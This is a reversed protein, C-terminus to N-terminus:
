DPRSRPGWFYATIVDGLHPKEKSLLKLVPRVLVAQVHFGRKQYRKVLNKHVSSSSSSISTSAPVGSPVDSSVGLIPIGGERYAGETVVANTYALYGVILYVTKKEKDAKRIWAMERRSLTASTSEFYSNVNKLSIEECVDAEIMVTVESARSPLLSGFRARKADPNGTSHTSQFRIETAIAKRRVEKNYTYTGPLVINDIPHPSQFDVVFSGLGEAIGMEIETTEPDMNSRWSESSLAPTSTTVKAINTVTTSPSVPGSESGIHITAAQLPRSTAGRELPTASSQSGTPINDSLGTRQFGVSPITDYIQFCALPLDDPQANEFAEWFVAEAEPRTAAEPSICDRILTRLRDPVKTPITAAADPSNTSLGGRYPLERDFWYFFVCGLAFVDAKNTWNPHDRTVEPPIFPLTGAYSVQGDALSLKDYGLGFDCLKFIAQKSSNYRVLINAPKIDRHIVSAWPNGEKDFEERLISGNQNRILGSHCYALAASLQNVFSWTLRETPWGPKNYNDRILHDLTEGECWEMIIKATDNTWTRDHYRVINPHDLRKLLKLEQEVRERFKEKTDYKDPLYTITKCALIKGSKKNKVQRVTGFGGRESNAGAVEEYENLEM